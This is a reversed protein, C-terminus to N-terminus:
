FNNKIKEISEIVQPTAEGDINILKSLKLFCKLVNFYSHVQGKLTKKKKQDFTSKQM